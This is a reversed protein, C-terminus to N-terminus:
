GQREGPQAGGRREGGEADFRQHRSGQVGCALAAASVRTLEHNYVLIFM